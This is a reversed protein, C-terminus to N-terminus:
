QIEKTLEFVYHNIGEIKMYDRYVYVCVHYLCFKKNPMCVHIGEPTEKVCGRYVTKEKIRGSVTTAAMPQNGRTEGVTKSPWRCIKLNRIKKLHFRVRLALSQAVDSECTGKGREEVRMLREMKCPAAASAEDPMCVFSQEDKEGM